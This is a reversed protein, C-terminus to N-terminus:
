FFEPGLDVGRSLLVLFVFLGAGRFLTITRLDEVDRSTEPLPSLMKARTRPLINTNDVESLMAGFPNIEVQEVPDTLTV